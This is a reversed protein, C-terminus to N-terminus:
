AVGLKRLLDGLVADSAFCEAAIARAARAHRSYDGLIEAVGAAAEDLTTIVPPIEHSEPPRPEDPLGNAALTVLVLGAYCAIREM